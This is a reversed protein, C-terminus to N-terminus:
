MMAMQRWMHKLVSKPAKQLQQALDDITEDSVKEDADAIKRNITNLVEYAFEYRTWDDVGM